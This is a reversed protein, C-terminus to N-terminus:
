LASKLASYLGLAKNWRPHGNGNAGWSLRESGKRFMACFAENDFQPEVYVYGEVDHKTKSIVLNLKASGLDNAEIFAELRKLEAKAKKLQAKTMTNEQRSM